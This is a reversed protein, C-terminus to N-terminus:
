KAKCTLVGNVSTPTTYDVYVTGVTTSDLDTAKGPKTYTMNMTVRYIDGPGIM